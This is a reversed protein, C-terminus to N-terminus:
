SIFNKLISVKLMNNYSECFWPLFAIQLVHRENSEKIDLYKLM